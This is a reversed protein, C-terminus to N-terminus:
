RIQMHTKRIMSSKGYSPAKALPVLLPTQVIGQSLDKDRKTLTQSLEQSGESKHNFTYIM